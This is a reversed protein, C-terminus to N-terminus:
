AKKRRSVGVLGMLASGFLWVAAPVPVNSPNPPTVVAGGGSVVNVSYSGGSATGNFILQLPSFSGIGFPGISYGGAGNSVIFASASAFASGNLSYLVDFSSFSNSSVVNILAGTPYIIDWKDSYNGNIGVHTGSANTESSGNTVGATGPPVSTIEIAASNAALPALSLSLVLSLFIKKM